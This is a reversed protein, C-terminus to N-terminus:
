AKPHFDPNCARKEEEEMQEDMGGHMSPHGNPGAAGLDVVKGSGLTLLANSVSIPEAKGAV